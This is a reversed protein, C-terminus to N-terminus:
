ASVRVSPSFREASIDHTSLHRASEAAVSVCEADDGYIQFLADGTEVVQGVSVLLDVGASLDDPAGAARAIGAIAWGDVGTIVGSHQAVVKRSYKGPSVPHTRRGQADIIREFSALAKGSALLSEAVERGKAVTGVDPAWALIESAFLLAKERLDVPADAANSLVLRVDRVELAPGVGRGIPGKGDTVMAKVHMGLGAGVYEFLQGLTHAESEDKLKARPGYPLDIIVHTSGASWKKSLISAVSWRNSDLGLPRTFANIRDDILSHNLRGNWAICGRAEEVCRQVEARTLDVRAVTDMADATGAASTIARSSTKPMALGFATVIPVVILTIRSGPIGGMSHKDVLIRENWEIRPSLSARVKALALVEPDSLHQSAHLLFANIDRDSYRLALIDDLVAGYQTENLADGALKAKMAAMSPAPPQTARDLAAVFREIGEELTGDNSVKVVEVDAPFPEVKRMVRQRVEEPTERGRALIREALVSAPASVEVVVMRPVRTRLAEVMARSGNAIVHRGQSLVDLLERRLGYRLGHASWTILFGGQRELASFGAENLAEHDEGPSGHARTIVRRAIVLPRDSDRVADILSDKGAGSPGVVFFFIGESM